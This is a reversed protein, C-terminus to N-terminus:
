AGRSNYNEYEEETMPLGETCDECETEATTTFLDRMLCFGDGDHCSVWYVCHRCLIDENM